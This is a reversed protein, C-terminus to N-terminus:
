HADRAAEPQYPVGIIRFRQTEGSPLEWDISQGVRLGLLATGVPALISIKGADIDAMGPYVLTIERREGTTANEFLVRSNMTVLDQPIEDRPVVKARLLENELREFRKSPDAEILVLLRDMDEQTLYIQPAGAMFLEKDTDISSRHWGM